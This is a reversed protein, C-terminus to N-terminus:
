ASGDGDRIIKFLLATNNNKVAARCAAVVRTKPVGCRLRAARQIMQNVEKLAGLLQAIPLPVFYYISLASDDPQVENLASIPQSIVLHFCLLQAVISTPVFSLLFSARPSQIFNYELGVEAHNTARKDHENILERSLLSVAVCYM